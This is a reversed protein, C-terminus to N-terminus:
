QLQGVIEEMRIANHSEDYVCEGNIVLIVQPSEHEVNFRRAIEASLDRHNLLDLYHCDLKDPAEARELRSKAVTSISCRTSHKFILQPREASLSVLQDLAQLSTLPMWVM